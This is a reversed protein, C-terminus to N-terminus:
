YVNNLMQQLFKEEEDVQFDIKLYYIDIDDLEKSFKILKVADKQTTLVSYSNTEYFEKRIQQVEKQSYNKHDNFLMKNTFDVNNDELVRLFSYPKAIGCVVLSKQGLFENIHFFEHTKLDYFGTAKYSGFYTKEDPLYKKIKQPLDMKESFKRNVIIVDARKSESFGERMRGMPLLNKELSNGKTLFKQDFILINFDRYIWRHQYADDLVITDLDFSELFKKAGDVRKESVSAPVMCEEAALYIEDGSDEVNLLHKEGDAIIKFGKTKRGYGRSLIGVKHGSKKLLNTVYITTPTKGTGGVTINGVSIVKSNVKVSKFVNKDFFLNRVRIVFTYILTFPFLFM